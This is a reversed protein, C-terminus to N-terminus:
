NVAPAGDGSLLLTGDAKLGAVCVSGAAIDAVDTWGEVSGASGFTPQGAMLVTGDARLGLVHSSGAAIDVIDTWENAAGIGLATNGLVTVSGDRHLLVTTWDGAAIDIIDDYGEVDCQGSDNSGCARLTGDTRLAVTHRRGAAVDIIAAWSTVECQGESNDGVALVRGGAKLAVSHREGAAIAVVDAWSSVSCRGYGTNGRAEVHGDAFLCLTHFENMSLSVADTWNVDKLGRVVGGADIYAVEKSIALPRAHWARREASDLTSFYLETVHRAFFRDDAAERVRDLYEGEGDYRVALALAQELDGVAFCRGFIEDMVAGFRAGDPHQEAWSIAEDYSERALSKAIADDFVEALAEENLDHLMRTYRAAQRYLSNAECYEILGHILEDYLAEDATLLGYGAATFDVTKVAMGAMADEAAARYIPQPDPVALISDYMLAREYDNASLAAERAETLVRQELAADKRKRVFGLAEDYRGEALFQETVEATAAPYLTNMAYHAAGGGAALVCLLAALVLVTRLAGRRRALSKAYTRTADAGFYPARAARTAGCDPCTEGGCVRGCACMWLTDDIAIPVCRARKGWAGLLAKEEKPTLLDRLLARPPREIYDEPSFDLSTGDTFTVQTVWADYNVIDYSWLKVARRDAFYEGPPCDLGAYTIGSDPAAGPYLCNGAGDYCRFRVVAGAVPRDGNNRLVFQILKNGLEYDYVFVARELSVPCTPCIQRNEVKAVTRFRNKLSKTMQMM